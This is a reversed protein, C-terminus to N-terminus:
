SCFAFFVAIEVGGAKLTSNRKALQEQIGRKASREFMGVDLKKWGEDGTVMEERVEGAWVDM